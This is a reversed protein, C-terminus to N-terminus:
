LSAPVSMMCERHMGVGAELFSQPLKRRCVPCRGTIRGFNTAAVSPASQIENLVFEADEGKVPEPELGPVMPVTTLFTYGAWKGETPKDLLVLIPSGDKYVAYHGDPAGTTARSKGGRDNRRTALLGQLAKIEATAQVTTPTGGCLKKFRALREHGEQNGWARRELLLLFDEQKQSMPSPTPAANESM